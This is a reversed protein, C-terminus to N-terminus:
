LEVKISPNLALLTEIFLVKDVPSINIEKKSFTKISILDHSLAYNRYSKRIKNIKEIDRIPIEILQFPGQHISFLGKDLIYTYHKLTIYVLLGHFITAFLFFFPLTNDIKFETFLVLFGSILFGLFELAPLVSYFYYQYKDVKTLMRM